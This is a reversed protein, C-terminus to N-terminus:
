HVTIVVSFRSARLLCTNPSDQIIVEVLLLLSPGYGVLCAVYLVDKKDKIRTRRHDWGTNDYINYRDLDM